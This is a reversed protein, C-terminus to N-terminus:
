KSDEKTKNKTIMGKKRIVASKMMSNMQSLKMDISKLLEIIKNEKFM